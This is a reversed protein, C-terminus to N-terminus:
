AAIGLTEGEYEEEGEYVVQVIAGSPISQVWLPIKVHRSDLEPYVSINNVQGIKEVQGSNPKKMYATVKGYSSFNGFRAVEIDLNPKSQDNKPAWTSQTGM